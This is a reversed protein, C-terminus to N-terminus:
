NCRKLPNFLLLEVNRDLPTGRRFEGDNFENVIFPDNYSLERSISAMEEITYEEYCESTQYESTDCRSGSSYDSRSTKYESTDCRSSYNSESTKYESTECRSSYKCSSEDYCDEECDKAPGTSFCGRSVNAPSAHDIITCFISITDDNNEGVEIIRSQQPFDIHSATNIEWFGKTKGSPDPYAKIFNRHEHGNVFGIVNDYRHIVRVFEPGLIRQPDNDFTTPTTANNNMTEITHHGFLIVLSDKNDTKVLQGQDNYYNSHRKRLENELWSMQISGISGNAALTPDELNGNINCTDLMIGTIKESVKFTYYAVNDKINRETFGHGINGPFLSSNFHANIFDARTYQLRKESKPIERLVAKNLIDLVGQADQLELARALLMAQVPTVFDVLKSGLDPLNGTALQNFLNLMQYFGLSYNGLKTSDHNGNCTYWPINLGTACFPKAAANLIGQFNPYGYDVKYQDPSVNEPNKDPHYYFKYAVSEFNDQIGVYKGPTAPNPVVKKGDLINIYNQLENKCQSDGNDGTNVAISIKQRLHPGRKVANIKRVMCEAVQNSFAEYPRFADSLFDDVPIFVGLFTARSPNSADIIHIDTLQVFTALPITKKIKRNDKKCHFSKSSSSSSNSSTTFSLTESERTISSSSSERTISSSTFSERSFDCDSSCEEFCQPKYKNHCVLDKRKICKDGKAYELKFYDGITGKNSPCEEPLITVDLTTEGKDFFESSM